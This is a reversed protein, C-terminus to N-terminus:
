IITKQLSLKGVDQMMRKKVEPKKRPKETLESAELNEVNKAHQM